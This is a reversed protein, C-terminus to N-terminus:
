SGPVDLYTNTENFIRRSSQNICCKLAAKLTTLSLAAWCPMMWREKPACPHRLIVGIPHLLRTTTTKYLTPITLYCYFVSEWILTESFLPVGLDDMKIPIEMLFWGNQPVVKKKQLCGYPPKRFHHTEGVVM